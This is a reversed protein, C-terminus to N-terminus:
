KVKSGASRDYMSWPDPGCQRFARMSGEDDDDDVAGGASSESKTEDEHLARSLRGHRWFGIEYFRMLPLELRQLLLHHPGKPLFSRYENM